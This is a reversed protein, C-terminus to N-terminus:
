PRGEHRAAAIEPDSRIPARSRRDLIRDIAAHRQRQRAAREVAERMLETIIANKDEGAYAANFADEVEDPIKFQVAAMDLAGDNQSNHIPPTLEQKKRLICSRGRGKSGESGVKRADAGNQVLEVIQRYGYGGALVTEEIGAHERIDAPMRRYNELRDRRWQEIFRELMNSKM